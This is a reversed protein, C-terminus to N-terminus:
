AARATQWSAVARATKRTLLAVNASLECYKFGRSVYAYILLPVTQKHLAYSRSLGNYTVTATHENRFVKVITIDYRKNDRQVIQISRAQYRTYTILGKAVLADRLRSVTTASVTLKSALEAITPAKGHKRLYARIAAFAASEGATLPTTM